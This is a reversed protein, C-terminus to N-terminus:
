SFTYLEQEPTATGSPKVGAGEMKPYPTSPLRRVIEYERKGPGIGLPPGPSTFPTFVLFDRIKSPRADALELLGYPRRQGFLTLDLLDFVKM